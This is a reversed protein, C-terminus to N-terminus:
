PPPIARSATRRAVPACTRPWRPPCAPRPAASRRPAPENTTAGCACAPRLRRRTSGPCNCRACERVRDHRARRAQRLVEVLERLRQLRRATGALLPDGINGVFQARRQRHQAGLDLRQLVAHARKSRVAHVRERLLHALERAQDLVQAQKRKRVHAGQVIVLLREVQALHDLVAKGGVFAREVRAAQPHREFDGRSDEHHCVRRSERLHERVQQLVGQPVGIRGTMHRHAQGPHAVVGLHHPVVGAGADRLGVQGPEGLPQEADVGRAAAGTAAASQPKRDHLGDDFTVAPREGSSLGREAAQAPLILNGKNSDPAM